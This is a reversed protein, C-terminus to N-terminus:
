DLGLRGLVQALVARDEEALDAKRSRYLTAQSRLIPEEALIKLHSRLQEVEFQKDLYSHIMRHREVLVAVRSQERSRVKRTASQIIQDYFARVHDVTDTLTVHLVHKDTLATELAVHVLLASKGMGPRALIFGVQGPGLPASLHQALARIPSRPYLDQM